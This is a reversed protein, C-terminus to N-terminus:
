QLSKIQDMIEGIRKIHKDYEDKLKIKTDLLSKDEYKILEKDSVEIKNYELQPLPSMIMESEKLLKAEEINLKKIKERNKKIKEEMEKDSKESGFITSDFLAENEKYLEIRELYLCEIRNEIKNILYYMKIKENMRRHLEERVEKDLLEEGLIYSGYNVISPIVEGVVWDKFLKAEEKESSLILSYFGAENILVTDKQKKVSIGLANLDYAIKELDSENLECLRIKHKEKVNDRIAVRTNKYELAEAADKAIFYIEKDVLIARLSIANEGFRNEFITVKCNAM